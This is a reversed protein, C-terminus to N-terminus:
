GCKSYGCFKCVMCGAEHRLPGGCDPCVGAVNGGKGNMHTSFADLTTEAPPEEPAAGQAKRLEKEIAKGIADACSYTMGGRGLLPSPCRIGKLQKVISDPEIGARLALSTLRGIAEIQSAACGGSKGMTAFLEFMGQDDRNITIYLNGCGTGAKQTTGTTELPRPRPTIGKEIAKEVSRQVGGINLVQEERSRDRYVTVGKCGAKYAMVYVEEIDQPTADHPFNVTKSVANDTHKQFAAQM